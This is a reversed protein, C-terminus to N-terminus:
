NRRHRKAKRMNQGQREPPVVNAAKVLWVKTQEARVKTVNLHYVPVKMDLRDPVRQSRSDPPQKSNLGRM